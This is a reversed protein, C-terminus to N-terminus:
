ASHGSRLISLSEPGCNFLLDVISLYPMFTAGQQPYQPHQYQQFHLKIGKEEFAKANIYNVASAGTLYDTAELSQCIEVLRGTADTSRVELDSSRLIETNEIKLMKVFMSVQDMDLESLFRYPKHFQQWIAEYFDFFYPCHYYSELILEKHRRQWPRDYSIEIDKIKAHYRGKSKVPVSLLTKEGGIGKIYNRNRWDRRTYQVDDLFVFTDSRSLQDFYGLWPLYSPQLIVVTKQLM